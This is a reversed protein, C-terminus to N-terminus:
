VEVSKVFSDDMTFFGMMARPPANHSLSMDAMYTRCLDFIAQSIAESDTLYVGEQAIIAKPYENTTPIEGHNSRSALAYLRRYFAKPPKNGNWESIVIYM